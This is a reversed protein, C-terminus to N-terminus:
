GSRDPRDRMRGYSMMKGTEAGIRANERQLRRQRYDHQPSLADKETESLAFWKAYAERFREFIQMADAETKLDYDPGVLGHAIRTLATHAEASLKMLPIPWEVCAHSAWASRRKIDTPINEPAIREQNIPPILPNQNVENM